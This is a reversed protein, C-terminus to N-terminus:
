RARRLMEGSVQLHAAAAAKKARRLRTMLDAKGRALVRRVGSEALDLAEAIEADTFDHWYHLELAFRLGLPTGDLADQLRAREPRHDIPRRVSGGLQAMTLAEVDDDSGKPRRGRLHTVLVHRTIGLTRARVSGAPDLQERQEILTVLVRQALDEPEPCKGTLFRVVMPTLRRVLRAGAAVDGHLWFRLLLEDTGRTM